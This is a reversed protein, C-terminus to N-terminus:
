LLYSKAFIKITDKEALGEENWNMSLSFFACNSKIRQAHLTTPLNFFVVFFM